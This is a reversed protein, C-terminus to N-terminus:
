VGNQREKRKSDQRGWYVGGVAGLVLAFGSYDFAEFTVVGEITMDSLLIKILGFALTIIWGARATCMRERQTAM